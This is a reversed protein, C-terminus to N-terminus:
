PSFRSPISVKRSFDYAMLWNTSRDPDPEIGAAEVM